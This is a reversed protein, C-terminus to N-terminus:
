KIEISIRFVYDKSASDPEGAVYYYCKAGEELGSIELFEGTETTEQMASSFGGTDVGYWRLGANLPLNVVKVLLSSGEHVTTSFYHLADSGLEIDYSTGAPLERAANEIEGRISIGIDELIYRPEISITYYEGIGDGEPIDIVSFYRYSGGPVFYDQVAPEYGSSSSTWDTYSSDKGYFTLEANGYLGSLSIEIDSRKPVYVSYYSTEDEAVSGYYMEGIVIEVPVETSGESDAPELPPGEEEFFSFVTDPVLMGEDFRSENGSTLAVMEMSIVISGTDDRATLSFIGGPIESSVRYDLTGGSFTDTIHIAEFSRDSVKVSDKEVVEPAALSRSRLRNLKDNMFMQLGFDLKDGSGSSLQPERKHAIGTEPHHYRIELPLGIPAALVELDIKIRESEVGIRWWKSGDANEALLARDIRFTREGHTSELIIGDGPAIGSSDLMFYQLLYTEFIDDGWVFQTFYDASEILTHYQLVPNLPQLIQEENYDNESFLPTICIFLLAIILIRRVAHRGANHNTISLM